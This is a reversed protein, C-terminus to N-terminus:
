LRLQLWCAAGAGKTHHLPAVLRRAGAFQAFIDCLILLVCERVSIKKSSNPEIGARSSIWVVRSSGRCASTDLVMSAIYYYAPNPENSVARSGRKGRVQCRTQMLVM